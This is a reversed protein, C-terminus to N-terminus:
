KVRAPRRQVLALAFMGMAILMSSVTELIAGAPTVTVNGSTEPVSHDLSAEQVM